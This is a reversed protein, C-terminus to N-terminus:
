IRKQGRTDILRLRQPRGAIAAGLEKTLPAPICIKFADVVSRQYIARVEAPVNRSVFTFRPEGLIEGDRTLAFMVTIETGTRAEALMPARWCAALTAYLEQLTNVPKSPAVGRGTDPRSQEQARVTGGCLLAALMM